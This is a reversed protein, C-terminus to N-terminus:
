VKPKRSIKGGKAGAIRAKERDLAFGKMGTGARGGAQGIKKYFDEGYRQKNTESAKKGGSTNGAM